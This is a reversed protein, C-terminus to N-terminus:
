HCYMHLYLYRIEKTFDRTENGNSDGNKISRGMIDFIRAYLQNTKADVLFLSARDASVLKQAFNMIKVILTDMSIMEMFISRVVNLLFSTLDKFKLKILNSSKFVAKLFSIIQGVPPRLQLVLM